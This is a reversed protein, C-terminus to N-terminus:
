QTSFKDHLLSILLRVQVMKAVIGEKVSEREKVIKQQIQIQEPM